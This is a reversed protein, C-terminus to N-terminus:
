RLNLSHLAFCCHLGRKMAQWQQCCLVTLWICESRACRLGGAGQDLLAALLQWLLAKTLCAHIQEGLQWDGPPPNTDTAGAQLLLDIVAQQNRRRAIQLPTKRQRDRQELTTPQEIIKAM